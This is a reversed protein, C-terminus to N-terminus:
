ASDTRKLTTIDAVKKGAADAIRKLAAPSGPIRGNEIRSMQGVSNGTLKAFQAITLGLDYRIAKIAATDAVIQPPPTQTVTM